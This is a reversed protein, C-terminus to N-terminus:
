AVPRRLDLHKKMRLHFTSGRGPESQAWVDGGLMETAIKRTLYLGLGTGGAKVRLHSDFREFAEFLREMDQPAIGIGTDQVSWLVSDGEDLFGVVIEGRESYKAANSLLNLLCQLVRKRDSHLTPWVQPVVTRLTLPKGTLLPQVQAQAEDLLAKPDIDSAYVDVRGAEIKSIDIVDTILDLLHTGARYIRGVDSHQEESLPGSLGQELMGSFGIIANLPTRLEHSMSAIFMSKLRDLEQLRRNASELDTTREQVLAELHERYGRLEQEVKQRMLIDAQLAQEAAAREAHYQNIVGALQDIEDRWHGPTELRLASRERDRRLRNVERTLRALRGTILVHIVLFLVVSTLGVLTLLSRVEASIGAVTKDRVGDESERLKLTGIRTSHDPALLPVEWERPQATWLTDYLNRWFSELLPAEDADAPVDRAVRPLAMVIQRMDSVEAYVTGGASVVGQMVGLLITMDYNWLGAELGAQSAQVAQRAAEREALLTKGQLRWITFGSLCVFLFSSLLVVGILTKAALDSLRFLRM